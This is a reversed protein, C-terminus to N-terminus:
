FLSRPKVTMTYVKWRYNRWGAGTTSLDYQRGFFQAGVTEGVNVVQNALDRQYSTDVGGEHALIYVRVEKVQRKINYATMGNPSNSYTDPLGDGDADLRFLVQLDAVCNLLPMLTLKGDAQNVVGKYLIGTKPSCNTPANGGPQLIYYDARNFPMRLTAATEDVGYAVYRDNATVPQYATPLDTSTSYAPYFTSDTNLLLTSNGGITQSPKLVIMRNGTDMDLNSDNWVHPRASHIYTWKGSASNEGVATSKIVLYDSGNYGIGDGNLIARPVGNPADNFGAPVVDVAESYNIALPNGFIDQTPFEDAIGFGAAEIDTRLIELTLAGEFQTSSIAAQTASGRILSQFTQMNMAVIISLIAIVILMEILSFGKERKERLKQM